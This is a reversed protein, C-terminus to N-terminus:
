KLLALIKCYTLLTGTAPNVWAQRCLRHPNKTDTEVHLQVHNYLGMMKNQDDQM